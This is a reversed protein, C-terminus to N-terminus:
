AESERRQYKMASFLQILTITLGALLAILFYSQIGGLSIVIAALSSGIAGGLQIASSNMSLMFSSQNQTLLAIRLGALWASMMWMTFFLVSPRAIPQCLLILLMFVMQMIGGLLLSKAYGILDSAYGGIYSGMFSAIGLLVM